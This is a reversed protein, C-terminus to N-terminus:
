EVDKWFSDSNGNNYEADVDLVKWGNDPNKIATKVDEWKKLYGNHRVDYFTKGDTTQDKFTLTYDNGGHYYWKDSEYDYVMNITATSNYLDNPNEKNKNLFIMLGGHNTYIGNKIEWPYYPNVYVSQGALTDIYEKPLLVKPFEISTFGNFDSYIVKLMVNFTSYNEYIKEYKEQEVKLKNYFKTLENNFKKYVDMDKVKQMNPKELIKLHVKDDDKVNLINIERKVVINGGKNSSITYELPKTDKEIKNNLETEEKGEAYALLTDSNNKIRGSNGMINIVASFGGFLTLSAISLIMITVVMEILTIGKKNM